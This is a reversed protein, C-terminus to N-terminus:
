RYAYHIGCYVLRSSPLLVEKLLVSSLDDFILLPPCRGHYIQLALRSYTSYPLIICLTFDDLGCHRSGQVLLLCHLPASPNQM